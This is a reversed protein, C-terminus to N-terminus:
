MGVPATGWHPALARKARESLGTQTHLPTRLNRLASTEILLDRYKHEIAQMTRPNSGSKQSPGKPGAGMTELILVKVARIVSVDPRRRASAPEGETVSRTWRGTKRASRPRWSPGIGTFASSLTEVMLDTPDTLETRADACGGPAMRIRDAVIEQAKEDHDVRHEAIGLRKAAQASRKRVETGHREGLVSILSKSLAPDARTDVATLDSLAHVAVFGMRAQEEVTTTNHGVVAHVLRGGSRAAVVAPLKGGLTQSDICGEGTVVVDCDLVTTSAWCTSSSTRERSGTRVSGAARSASGGAAGAGPEDALDRARPRRLEPLLGVCTALGLRSSLSRTPHRRGEAARIGGRCRRTRAAPQHRRRRRRARHRRPRGARDHRRPRDPTLTAGSPAVPTRARRPLAVGLAALMGAGGDTSASGGLALVIRRAGPTGPRWSPRASGTPRAADDTGPAGTLTALGCTNAVEVVATDGNRHRLNSRATPRGEADQVEVPHAPLRRQPRRRRKRRRRRGAAPDEVRRGGDALGEAIAEAVEAATLSGKFKDPAVLVRMDAAARARPHPAPGRRRGHVPGDLSAPEISWAQPAPRATPQDRRDHPPSRTSRTCRRSTTGASCRRQGPRRRPDQGLPRHVPHRRRQRLLQGPRPVRVHVQRHRLDLM